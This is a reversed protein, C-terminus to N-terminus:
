LETENIVQSVVLVADIAVSSAESSRTQGNQWIAFLCVSVSIKNLTLVSDSYDGEEEKVEEEESYKRDVPDRAATNEHRWVPRRSDSGRWLWSACRCSCSAASGVCVEPHPFCHLSFIQFNHSLCFCRIREHIKNKTKINKLPASPLLLSSSEPPSYLGCSRPCCTFWNSSICWPM